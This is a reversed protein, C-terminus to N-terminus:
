EVRGSLDIRSDLFKWSCVFLVFWSLRRVEQGSLADEQVSMEFVSKSFRPVNDNEDVITISVTCSASYSGTAEADVGGNTAVVELTYPVRVEM